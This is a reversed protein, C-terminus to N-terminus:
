PYDPGYLTGQEAGERMLQLLQEALELERTLETQDGQNQDMLARSDSRYREVAQAMEALAEERNEQYSSAADHMGDVLLSLAACKQASYQTFYRGADDPEADGPLALELTENRQSGDPDTYALSLSAGLGDFAGGDLKLMLAGRNESLFVSAVNLEAEEGPFGYGQGVAFGGTPAVDVSLDYAIPSVMWPWNAEMFPSVSGAEAISFGNGGRLNVMAHMVTPDLGIGTGIVTLGIGDTALSGAIEMFSGPSSAGVNPNADTILIIRRERVDPETEAFMDRALRLGAEMNTSGGSELSEVVRHLRESQDGPIFDLLRHAHTEFTAIGIRDSGDFRQVLSRLLRDAVDAPRRYDGYDWGMSASVDVLLVVGLSAREFADPDINSSLGLQIWGANEQWGLAGRLCLLDACEDGSLPLDHESLMAEVLLAEAPPVRGNSVLERALSMDQVGGPTAGFGGGSYNGAVSPLSTTFSGTDCGTLVIVVLTLILCRGM